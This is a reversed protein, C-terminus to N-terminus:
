SCIAVVLKVPKGNYLVISVVKVLTGSACSVSAQIEIKPQPAGSACTIYHSANYDRVWGPQANGCAAKSTSDYFACSNKGDCSAHILNDAAYTCDAECSTGLVLNFDATVQQKPPVVLNNKTKPAYDPHSAVLNFTGCNMGISYSGQQNTATSKVSTVDIKADIDVSQIPQANADKVNGSISGACDFDKCDTLGNCNNDLNDACNSETPTKAICLGQVATDCVGKANDCTTDGCQVDVGDADADTGANQWQCGSSCSQYRGNICQTQGPSCLGQNICTSSCSITGCNGCPQGYNGPTPNAGSCASNCLITGGCGCAGCNCSAGFSPPTPDSGSCAGNCQITGGCGCAGCACSAGTSGSCSNSCSGDCLITGGNGCPSGINGVCSPPPPPPPPTSPPTSSCGNGGGSCSGDCQVTGCGCDGCNCSSGVSGVCSPACSGCDSPCNSCSESGWVACQLGGEGSDYYELCYIDGCNGNGCGPIGNESTSSSTTSTEGGPNESTTTTADSSTTSSDSDAESYVGLSFFLLSLLILVSILLIRDKDM